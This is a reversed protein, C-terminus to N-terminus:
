ERERDGRPIAPSEKQSKLSKMPIGETHGTALGNHLTSENSIKGGSLTCIESGGGSVRTPTRGGSNVESKNNRGEESRFTRSGGKLRLKPSHSEVIFKRTPQWFRETLTMSLEKVKKRVWPLTKTKDRKARLNLFMPFSVCVSLVLWLIFPWAAVIPSGRDFWPDPKDSAIKVVPKAWQIM